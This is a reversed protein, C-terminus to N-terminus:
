EYNQEAVKKCKKLRNCNNSSSSKYTRRSSIQTIPLETPQLNHQVPRWQVEVLQALHHTEVSFYANSPFCIMLTDIQYSHILAACWWAARVIRAAAQSSPFSYFFINTRRRM